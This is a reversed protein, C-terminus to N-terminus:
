IKVVREVAVIRMRITEVYRANNSAYSLCLIFGPNGWGVYM